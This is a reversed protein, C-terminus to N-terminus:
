LEEVVVAKKVKVEDVATLIGIFARTNLSINDVEKKDEAILKLLHIATEFPEKAKNKKEALLIDKRLAPRVLIEAGESKLLFRGDMEEIQHKPLKTLEDINDSLANGYAEDTKLEEDGGLWCDALVSQVYLITSVQIATFAKKMVALSTLPDFIYAVKDEAILRYIKGHRAKWENIQEQTVM